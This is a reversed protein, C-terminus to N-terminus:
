CMLLLPLYSVKYLWVESYYLLIIKSVQLPDSYKERGFRRNGDMIVAVHKPVNEPASMLTEKQDDTLQEVDDIDTELSALKQSEKQCYSSYLAVLKTYYIGAVFSVYSLLFIAILQFISSGSANALFNSSTGTNFSFIDTDINM